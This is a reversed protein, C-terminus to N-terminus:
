SAKTWVMEPLEPVTALAPLPFPGESVRVNVLGSQDTTYWAAEAGSGTTLGM